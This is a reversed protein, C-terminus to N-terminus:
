RTEGIPSPALRPLYDALVTRAIEAPAPEISVRIGREDEQLPELTDFQSELLSPPMYAHSRTRVREAVLEIPGHPEVIYLEPEYERLIDRYSRKLASCAMVVGGEARRAVIEEGVRRLWPEREADGLPLGAAMREINEPTHLRDGDIFAVGLQEALLGGITTKGTGQAGMVVLRVSTGQAM